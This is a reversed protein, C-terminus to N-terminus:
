VHFFDRTEFTGADFARGRYRLNRKLTFDFLLIDYKFHVLVFGIGVMQLAAKAKGGAGAAIVYGEQSAIARLGTVALERAMLVIVLWAPARGHAVLMVLTCLVILKDRSVFSLDKKLWDLQHQQFFGDYEREKGLYRVNDMVVYHVQGRNFSYYTPGYVRQFTDDSTEDGGKRYDMDHNGLCQFFPIGM